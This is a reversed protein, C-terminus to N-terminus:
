MSTVVGKSSLRGVGLASTLTSAFWEINPGQNINFANNTSECPEDCMFLDNTLKLNAINENYALTQAYRIIRSLSSALRNINDSHRYEILSLM